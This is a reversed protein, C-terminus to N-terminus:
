AASARALLDGLNGLYIVAHMGPQDIIAMTRRGVPRAEFDVPPLADRSVVARVSNNRLFESRQVVTMGDWKQRYTEGTESEELRDEERPIAHLRALEAETRKLQEQLPRVDQGSLAGLQVQRYLDAIQEATRSIDETFDRAKVLRTDRLRVHGCMALLESTIADELAEAQIRRATCTRTRDYSASEYCAYYRYRRGKATVDSAHLPAGCTCYAVRLLLSTNSRAPSKNERIRAQVREWVDRSVLADSRYVIVGQDDRVPEGNSHVAAGLIRPGHLVLRVTATTWKTGVLEKGNRTRLADRPAPVGTDNLWKAISGLSEYRLYRDCMEAVIPGFEADPEYIWGGPTKAVRYGFSVVGGMYKGDLQLKRYADAVRQGMTEREFEAFTATISAFARGAPTSLDLPPDLCILVKGRAELWATLSVFDLLSRTLRDLKAVIIGDWLALRDDRLWPGLGPRDFPSVAGSVDLDYDAETIPLLTHDGMRAYLSIKEM